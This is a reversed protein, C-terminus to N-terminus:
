PYYIALIDDVSLEVGAEDALVILGLFVRMGNPMLQPIVLQYHYMCQVLLPPLPLRLGCEFYITYMCIWGESVTDAREDKFPLRLHVKNLFRFRGRLERHPQQRNRESAENSTGVDRRSHQFEHEFRSRRITSALEEDDSSSDSSDTSTWEVDVDEIIEKKKDM